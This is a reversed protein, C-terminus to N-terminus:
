NFCLSGIMKKKKKMVVIMTVISIVDSQNGGMRDNLLFRLRPYLMGFM